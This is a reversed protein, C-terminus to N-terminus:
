HRLYARRNEIEIMTLKQKMQEIFDNQNIIEDIIDVNESLFVTNQVNTISDTM